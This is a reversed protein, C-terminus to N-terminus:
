KAAVPEGSPQGAVQPGGGDAGLEAPDVIGEELWTHRGELVQQALKYNEDDDNAWVAAFLDDVRRRAQQCFLDALEVRRTPASPTSRARDDARVDCASSIAFLEAGIDVIRGLVRRSRRSSPRGAAWRASRRARSSARRASSSACTRRGAAGFESSRAPSAARASSCSRCGSPTSSRRRRRAVKAKEKLDVGDGEIIDGAVELHQDVAERAILLHMIETSGEFIRNIRMDRMLQETPIPKEGRAKLSEATEYGRGGRVQMLEDVVKWGM